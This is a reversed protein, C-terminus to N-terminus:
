ATPQKSVKPMAHYTDLYKQMAIFYEERHGANLSKDPESNCIIGMGSESLDQWKEIQALLLNVRTYLYDIADHAETENGIGMQRYATERAHIVAMRKQDRENDM